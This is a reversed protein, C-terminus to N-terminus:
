VNYAFHVIEVYQEINNITGGLKMEMFPGMNEECFTRVLAAVTKITDITIGSGAERCLLDRVFQSYWPHSGWHVFEAAQDTPLMLCNWPENFEEPLDKEDCHYIEKLIEVPIVHHAQKGRAAGEGNEEIYRRRLNNRDMVKMGEKETM